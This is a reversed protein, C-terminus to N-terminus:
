RPVVAVRPQIAHAMAMAFVQCALLKAVKQKPLIRELKAMAPKAFEGVAIMMNKPNVWASIVSVNKILRVIPTKM